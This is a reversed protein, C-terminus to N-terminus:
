NKKSLNLPFNDSLVQWFKDFFILWSAMLHGNSNSTYQKVGFDKSM